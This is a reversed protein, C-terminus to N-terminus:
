HFGDLFSRRAARGNAENIYNNRIASRDGLFQPANEDESESRKFGAAFVARRSHLRLVKMRQEGKLRSYWTHSLSEIGDTAERLNRRDDLCQRKSLFCRGLCVQVKQLELVTTVWSISAKVLYINTYRTLLYLFFFFFSFQCHRRYKRTCIPKYIM